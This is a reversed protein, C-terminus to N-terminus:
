VVEKIYRYLKDVDNQDFTLDGIFPISVPLKQEFKPRAANYLRDININGAEDMVGMMQVVPNERLTLLQEKGGEAILSLAVGLGIAKGTPLHPGIEADAFRMVGRMAQDITIM